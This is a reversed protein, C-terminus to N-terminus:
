LCARLILLVLEWEVSYHNRSREEINRKLCM